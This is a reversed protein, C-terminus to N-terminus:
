GKSFWPHYNETIRKSLTRKTHGVHGADCSYAFHYISMSKACLHLKDRVYGCIMPPNSFIISLETSYFTKRLSRSLRNSLIEAATNGKFQFNM